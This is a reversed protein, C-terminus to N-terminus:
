TVPRFIFGIFAPTFLAILYYVTISIKSSVNSNYLLNVRELERIFEAFAALADGKEEMMIEQIKDDSKYVNNDKLM